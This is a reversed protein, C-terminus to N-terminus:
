QTKTPTNAPAPAPTPATPAIPLKAPFTEVKHFLSPPLYVSNFTDKKITGDPMTVTRYWVAKLAGNAKKDFSYPGDLVVQRSDKTGYFDFELHTKDTFRPWVLLYASTNNIFKLDASGPYITADTGQPSYWRVAYSHNRRETIPLGGNVAARFVTSSVQCLGGGFEPITGERKIVLEPLFGHEADVPGLFKNFSFEEGPALLTGSEKEVGVKINHIRNAPSNSFDSIGSAVLEKIGLNNTSALSKLPQTENISLQADGQGDSLAQVINAISEHIDLIKGSTGPDFSTVKNGNVVMETEHPTQDFGQELTKLYQYIAPLNYNEFQLHSEIASQAGLGSLVYNDLNQEPEFSYEAALGQDGPTQWANLINQPIEINQGAGHLVFHTTATQARAANSFALLIVAAVTALALNFKLIKRFM